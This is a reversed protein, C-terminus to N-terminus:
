ERVSVASRGNAAAHPARAAPASGPHCGTLGVARLMRWVSTVSTALAIAIEGYSLGRERYISARWPKALPVAIYCGGFEGGMLAAAAAGIARTIRGDEAVKTPVYLRVGGLQEILRLSADRGITSLLRGFVTDKDEAQRPM